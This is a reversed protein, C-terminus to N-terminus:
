QLPDTFHQCHARTHTHAHTHTHTVLLLFYIDYKARKLEAQLKKKEAPIRAAEVEAEFAQCADQGKKREREQVFVLRAPM